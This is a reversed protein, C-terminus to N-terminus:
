RKRRLLALGGLGLLCVTAPEPVTTLQSAFGASLGMLGDGQVTLSHAGAALVVEGGGFLPDQWRSEQYGPMGTPVGAYPMTTTLILLGFDWVKYTDGPIFDDTIRFYAPITLNYVYPSDSSDTWAALINDYSWGADLVPAPAIEEPNYNIIWPPPEIPVAVVVAPMILGAMVCIMVLKKM